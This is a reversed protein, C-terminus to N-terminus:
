LKKNIFEKIKEFAEDPTTVDLCLQEMPCLGDGRRNKIYPVLSGYSYPIRYQNLVSVAKDSMIEGYIYSVGCKALLFAAAGGIVKDAVTAGSLISSDKAILEMIPAVGKKDSTIVDDEKIAVFSLNEAKLIATAKKANETM